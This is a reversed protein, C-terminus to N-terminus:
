SGLTMRKINPDGYVELQRNGRRLLFEITDFDKRDVEAAYRRFERTVFTKFHSRSDAPKRAAARLCRRYLALVERQLGTYRSM